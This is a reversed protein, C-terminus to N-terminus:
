GDPLADFWWQAPDGPERGEDDLLFACVADVAEGVSVFPGSRRLHGESSADAYWTRGIGSSRRASGSADGRRVDIGERGDLEVEFVEGRFTYRKNM